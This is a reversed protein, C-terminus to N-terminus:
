AETKGDDFLEEVKDPEQEFKEAIEEAAEGAEEVADEVAEAAADVAEAAADAADEALEEAVADDIAKAEATDLDDDAVEKFDEDFIDEEPEQLAEKVKVAGDAFVDKMKGATEGVVELVTEGKPGIAEKIRTYAQSSGQKITTYTRSAAAKVKAAREEYDSKKAEESAEEEEEADADAEAEAGADEADKDEDIDDDAFIEDDDDIDCFSDKSTEELYYYVTAAAVGLVTAGFLLRGLKSMIARWSREYSDRYIRSIKKAAFVISAIFVFPIVEFSRFRRGCGSCFGRPVAKYM